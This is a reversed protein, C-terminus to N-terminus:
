IQVGKAMDPSRHCPRRACTSARSCHRCGSTSAPLPSRHRAPSSTCLVRSPTIAVPPRCPSAPPQLSCPAPPMSAHVGQLCPRHRCVHRQPAHLLPHRPSMSPSPPPAPPASLKRYLRRYLDARGNTRLALAPSPLSSAVPLSTLSAPPRRRSLAWSSISTEITTSCQPSM